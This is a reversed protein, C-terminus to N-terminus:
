LAWLKTSALFYLLCGSLGLCFLFCFLAAPERQVRGGNKEWKEEGIEYSEMKLQFTWFTALAM